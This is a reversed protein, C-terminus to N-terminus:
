SRAVSKAAAGGPAPAARRQKEEKPEFAKDYARLLYPASHSWSFQRVCRERGIAGMESRLQEDDFLMDIKKAFDAYNDARAYLSAGGASRRGETLDFQVIPKGLAMYEVVKNMTSKDNMECCRDPSVCIDATNLVKSLVADDKVWGFFTFYDEVRKERAQAKVSELAPGDGLIAVHFDTRALEKVLYSVADVLLDLGDQRGIVGVYGLLFKKGKKLAPDGEGIKLRDLRPGSRVVFVREYAMKGRKIAIDQFSENTAISIDALAFTARELGLLMKYIAGKRGFKADFLEPSLDHHDFLFKAGFLFKFIAAVVFILDPPNCAHIVDFGRERRVKFALRVQGWFASVYELVYDLRSNGAERIAHRYVHVGDIMEYDAVYGNMKPSIVSVQYGADALTTAESWVRRDFPVPLNEVIILVKRAAAGTM